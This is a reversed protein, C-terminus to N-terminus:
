KGARKEFSLELDTLTKKYYDDSMEHKKCYDIDSELIKKRKNFIFGPMDIGNSIRLIRLVSNKPDSNVTDDIIQFGKNLLSFSMKEGAYITLASGYYGRVVSNDSMKLSQELNNMAPLANKKTIRALQHYLIGIEAYNEANKEKKLKETLENIQVNLEPKEMSNVKELWDYDLSYVAIAALIFVIILFDKKFM